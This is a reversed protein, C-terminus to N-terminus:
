AQVVATGDAGIEPGGMFPWCAKAGIRTGLLNSLKSTLTRSGAQHRHLTPSVCPRRRSAPDAPRTSCVRSRMALFRIPPQAPRVLPRIVALDLAIIPRVASCGVEALPAALLGRLRPGTSYIRRTRPPWGMRDPDCPSGPPLRDSKGRSTQTTGRIRPQAPRSALQWGMAAPRWPTIAACRQPTRPGRLGARFDASPRVPPCTAPEGGRDGSRTREASRIFPRSAM